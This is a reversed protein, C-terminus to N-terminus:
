YPITLFILAPWTFTSMTEQVCLEERDFYLGSTDLKYKNKRM